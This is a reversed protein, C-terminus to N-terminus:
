DHSEEEQEDVPIVTNPLDVPITVQFLEAIARTRYEEVAKLADLVGALERAPEGYWPRGSFEAQLKQLGELARDAWDKVGAIEKRALAIRTPELRPESM